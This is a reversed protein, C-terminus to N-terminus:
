IIEVAVPQEEMEGPVMTVILRGHVNYRYDM